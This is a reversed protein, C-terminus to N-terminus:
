RASIKLDQSIVGSGCARGERLQTIEKDEVEPNKPQCQGYRAAYLSTRYQNSRSVTRWSLHGNGKAEPDCEVRQEPGDM